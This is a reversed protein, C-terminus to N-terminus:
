LNETEVAQRVKESTEWYTVTAVVKSADAPENQLKEALAKGSRAFLRDSPRLRTAPCFDNKGDGVYMIKQFPGHLDIYRDLEQGKCINVACHNACSHQPATAPIRRQIRWRGQEDTYVPNTIIDDVLDRVDYAQLITDIYFTNADSVIVVRTQHARLMQLTSIMAPTFPIKELVREFEAKTTGRDQLQRIAMDMRDTFQMDKLSVCQDWQEQSLQRITWQDSDEEILSWDFDFVALNGGITM